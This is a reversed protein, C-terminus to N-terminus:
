DGPRGHLLAAGIGGTSVSVFVEGNFEAIKGGLFQAGPTNQLIWHLGDRSLWVRIEQQTAATAVLWDDGHAVVPCGELIASWDLDSRTWGSGDVTSWAALDGAVSKGIVVFGQTQAPAIGCGVSMDNPMAIEEWTTGDASRWAIPRSPWQDQPADTAEALAGVAVATGDAVAVDLFSLVARDTSKIDTPQWSSEATWEWMGYVPGILGTARAALLGDDMAIAATVTGYTYFENTSEIFEWSAGDLSRWGVPRYFDNDGSFTGFSFLTDGLKTMPGMGSRDYVAAGFDEVMAELFTPDPVPHRQWAVGDSSTWSALGDNDRGAAVLQGRDSILADIRGPFPESSWRLNATSAGSPEDQPESPSAVSSEPSTELPASSAPSQVVDGACSTLSIALALVGTPLRMLNPM